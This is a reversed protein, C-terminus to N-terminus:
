SPQDERVGRAEVRVMAVRPPISIFSAAISVSPSTLVNPSTLATSPMSM